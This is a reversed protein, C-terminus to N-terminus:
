QRLRLLRAVRAALPSGRHEAIFREALARAESTRGLKALAEIRLAAAEPRFSGAPYKDHYRRLSELARDGEGARLATRAGDILAIQERLDATKSGAPRRHAAPAAAEAPGTEVTAAPAAQEPVVPAAPKAAPAVAAPAAPPTAPASPMWMRTGVVVGAVALVVVGASIWPLLVSAGAKAAAAGASAVCDTAATTSAAAGIAASSIGIAAAMRSSLDLSPEEAAAAGLLRRELDTAGVVRLREPIDETTRTM